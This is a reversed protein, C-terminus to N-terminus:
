SNATARQIFHYAILLVVSGITASIISRLLHEGVAASGGFIMHAIFNGVFAGAIGIVATVVWGSPNNGGVLMKALGGAILGIVAIYLYHLM